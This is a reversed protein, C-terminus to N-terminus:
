KIELKYTVNAQESDPGRTPMTSAGLGQITVTYQYTHNREIAYAAHTYTTNESPDMTIRYYTTIGNYNAEIVMVTANTAGGPYYEPIYYMTEYEVATGTLQASTTGAVATQGWTTSGAPSAVPTQPFVFSASPLNLFKVGTIKIDSTRMITLVDSLKFSLEVRAIQRILDISLNTEDGVINPALYGTMVPPNTLAIGANHARVQSTLQVITTITAETIQPMGLAGDTWNALCYIKKNGQKVTIRLTKNVPDWMPDASTGDNYIAIGKYIELADSNDADFVFFKLATIGSEETEGPVSTGARSAPSDMDRIEHQPLTVKLTVLSEGLPESRDSGCSAMSVCLMILAIAFIERKTSNCKLMIGKTQM